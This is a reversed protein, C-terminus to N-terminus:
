VRGFEGAEDAQSLPTELTIVGTRSLIPNLVWLQQKGESNGDAEPM